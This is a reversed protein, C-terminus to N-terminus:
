RLKADKLTVGPHAPLTLDRFGIKEIDTTGFLDMLILDRTVNTLDILKHTLAEEDPSNALRRYTVYGNRFEFFFYSTFDSPMKAFYKSLKVAWNVRFPKDRDSERLFEPYVSKMKSCCDVIEWPTYINLRRIARQCYGVVRDPLM